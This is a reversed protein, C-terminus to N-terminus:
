LINLFSILSEFEWDQAAKFCNPSWHVYSGSYDMYDLVLAENSGILKSGM